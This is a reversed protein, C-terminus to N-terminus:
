QRNRLIFPLYVFRNFAIGSPVSIIPGGGEQPYLPADPDLTFDISASPNVSVTVFYRGPDAQTTDLLFTLEGSSSVAMANTLTHGNIVVTAVGNPPFHFGTLTFFSGVGGISHNVVLSPSTLWSVINLGFQRNDEYDIFPDSGGGGCYSSDGVIVVRGNGYNLALGVSRSAPTADPDTTVLSIGPGSMTATAFSQLSGVGQMIPHSAFNRPHFTIWINHDEIYDSPDTATNADLTIGFAASLEREAANSHYGREDSHYECLLFLSGGQQVYMQLAAIESVTYFTPVDTGNYNGISPIVFLDYEQLAELTVTSTLADVTYGNSTLSAVFSSYNYRGTGISINAHVQDFLIRIGNSVSNNNPAQSLTELSAAKGSSGDPDFVPEAESPDGGWYTNGIVDSGLIDVDGDDDIDIANQKALTQGQFQVRTSNGQTESPGVLTGGTGTLVPMATAPASGLLLALLAATAWIRCAANRTDM